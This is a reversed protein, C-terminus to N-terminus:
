LTRMSGSPKCAVRHLNGCGTEVLKTPLGTHFPKAALVYPRQLVIITNPFCSTENSNWGVCLDRLGPITHGWIRLTYAWGLLWPKKPLPHYELIAYDM